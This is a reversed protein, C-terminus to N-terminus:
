GPGTDMANSFHLTLDIEHQVARSLDHQSIQLLDAARSFSCQEAIARFYRLDRSDM